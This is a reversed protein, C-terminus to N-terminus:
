PRVGVTASEQGSLEAPVSAYLTSVFPIRSVISVISITSITLKSIRISPRPRIHAYTEDTEAIKRIESATSLRM